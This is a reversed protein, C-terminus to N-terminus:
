LLVTTFSFYYFPVCWRLSLSPLPFSPPPLFRCCCLNTPALPSFCCGFLHFLFSFNYPIFRGVALGFLMFLIDVDCGRLTGMLTMFIGSLFLTKRQCRLSVISCTAQIFAYRLPAATTTTPPPPTKGNSFLWIKFSYRFYIFFPVCDCVRVRLRVWVCVHEDSDHVRNFPM